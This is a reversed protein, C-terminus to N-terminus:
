RGKKKLRYASLRVVNDPLPEDQRTREAFRESDAVLNALFREQTVQETCIIPTAGAKSQPRLGARIRSSRTKLQEQRQSALENYAHWQSLFVLDRPLSDNIPLFTYDNNM